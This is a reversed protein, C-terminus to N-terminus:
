RVDKPDGGRGDVAGATGIGRTGADGAAAVAAAEAAGPRLGRASAVLAVSAQQM